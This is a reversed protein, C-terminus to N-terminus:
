YAISTSSFSSTMIVGLKNREIIVPKFTLASVKLGTKKFEINEWQSFTHYYYKTKSAKFDPPL